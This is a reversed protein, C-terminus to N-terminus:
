PSYPQVRVTRNWRTSEGPLLHIKVFIEPSIVHSTGWLNFKSAPLSVEESLSFPVQTHRLIWGVAGPEPRFIHSIFFPQTPNRQISIHQVHIRLAEDPNVFEGFHEQHIPSPLLLSYDPGIKLHNFALFNHTYETTDIPKEGTNVLAYHIVLGDNLLEITKVLDYGFGQHVEGVCRIVLENENLQHSFRAPKVEYSTHFQYERSTKRLLGVGIKHCWEGIEAEEFGLPNDMCFENYLGKGLASEGAETETTTLPIGAWILRKIKGTWDFRTNRYGEDPLDIDILLRDNELIM